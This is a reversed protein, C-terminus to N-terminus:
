NIGVGVILGAPNFAVQAYGGEGDFHLTLDVWTMGDRLEAKTVTCSQFTGRPTMVEAWASALVEATLSEACPQSMLARSADWQGDVLLAIFAIADDNREDGAAQPIADRPDRGALTLAVADDLHDLGFTAALALAYRGALPDVMLCARGGYTAGNHWVVGERTRQWALGADVAIRIPNGPRGEPPSLVAAGWAELDAVTGKVGGAGVIANSWPPTPKGMRFGQVQGERVDTSASTLGFPEFVRAALLNPMSDSGIRELAVALLQFGFNSYEHAGDTRRTVDRLASEALDATYDAYPDLENSISAELNAPLRPLGSTHMALQRLTIDSNPGADLWKGVPDDLTVAGDVVFSGLVTATMTKTISGFEFRSSADAHAFASASHDGDAVLTAIAIPEDRLGDLAGLLAAAAENLDGAM